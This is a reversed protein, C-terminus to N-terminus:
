RPLKDCSLSFVLRLKILVIFFFKLQMGIELSIHVLLVNVLSIYLYLFLCFKVMINICEHILNYAENRQFLIQKAFRHKNIIGTMFKLLFAIMFNIFIYQQM